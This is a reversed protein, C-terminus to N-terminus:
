RFLRIDLLDQGNFILGFRGALHVLLELDFSIQRLFRGDGQFYFAADSRSIGGGGALRLQRLPDFEELFAKVFRFGCKASLTKMRVGEVSWPKAWGERGITGERDFDVRQKGIM